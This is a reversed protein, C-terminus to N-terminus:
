KAVFRRLSIPVADAKGQKVLVVGDEEKRKQLAERLKVSQADVVNKQKRRLKASIKNRGRKRDKDKSPEEIKNAFNFIERHEQQLTAQDKDISGIFSPDLAIMEYSLKHLLTQVEQERRQKSSMFPDNEFTDYNPEGAGPVVMSTVGHSHGACLVDEYPRFRVCGVQVSSLLAKAAATAGAGSSLAANPTRVSHKLYTVDGPRLFADKLVQVHRGVGLGIMSRDSIDVSSAPRDLKFSHLASFKRLDWIKLLGDLGATAMYRGERDVALDSVPARHCLMSALAKGSAPSWLSVVGNNHGVHCVANHPNHKLVKAPGHGTQFGAVYEGISIDHWKLWGSHGISTLLYHYPLFGLRYPREHKKLCHIEVGNSDYIYTYKNQAVAFLTENHLFVADHVEEELQLECSISTRLCDMVAVHGKQGSLVKFRGNRSYNLRYPGFKTLQLDIINRGTNLDVNQRIVEQRLKYTRENGETVIVGAETPLLVETAATKTSADVISAQTNSLTMKLAKYKVGKTNITLSGRAYKELTKEEIQLDIKGKKSNGKGSSSSGHSKSGTSSSRKKSSSSSAGGERNRGREEGDVMGALRNLIYVTLPHTILIFIIFITSISTCYNSIPLIHAAQVAQKFM